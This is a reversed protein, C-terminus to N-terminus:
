RAAAKQANQSCGALSYAYLTRDTLLFIRGEKIMIPAYSLREDDNFSVQGAVKGDAVNILVANHDDVGSMLVHREGIKSIEALRGSIRKKWVISGNSGAVLYVFNDHSAALINSGMSFLASVEGGSRFQWDMETGTGFSTVNGREDGVIVERQSTEAVATTRFRTSRILDVAGTGLSVTLVRKTDTAVILRTPGVLPKVVVKAGIQREWRLQGTSPDISMIAGQDSVIIVSGKSSGM